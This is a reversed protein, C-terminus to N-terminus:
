FWGSTWRDMNVIWIVLIMLNWRFFRWFLWFSLFHSNCMFFEFSFDHFALRLTRLEWLWPVMIQQLVGQAILLQMLAANISLAGLHM